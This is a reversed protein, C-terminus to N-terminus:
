GGSIEYAHRARWRLWGDTDYEAYIPASHQLEVADRLQAEPRIAYRLLSLKSPKSGYRLCWVTPTPVIAMPSTLSRGLEVASYSVDFPASGDVGSGMEVPFPLVDFIGFGGAISTKGNKFPDWAFGIRPEFNRKTPNMM